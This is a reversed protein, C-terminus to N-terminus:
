NVKVWKKKKTVKLAFELRELENNLDNITDEMRKIAQKRNSYYGDYYFDYTGRSENGVCSRAEEENAHGDVVRFEVHQQRNTVEITSSNFNGITFKM